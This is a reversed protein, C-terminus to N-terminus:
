TAQCNTYIIISITNMLPLQMFNCMATYKQVNKIRRLLISM